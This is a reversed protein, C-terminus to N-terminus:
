NKIDEINEIFSPINKKNDKQEIYIECWAIERGFNFDYGKYIKKFTGIGLIEDSQIIFKIIYYYIFVKGFHEDKSKEIINEPSDSDMEKFFTDEKEKDSENDFYSLSDNDNDLGEKLKNSKSSSISSPHTTCM